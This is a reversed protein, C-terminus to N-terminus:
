YVTETEEMGRTEVNKNNQNQRTGTLPLISLERGEEGEEGGGDKRRGEKRGGERGEKRRRREEKRGKRREGTHGRGCHESRQVLATLGQSKQAGHDWRRILKAQGPGLKSLLPSPM